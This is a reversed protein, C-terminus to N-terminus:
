CAVQPLAPAHVALARIAALNHPQHLPALPVLSELDALVQPTIRVPAAYDAGGHVVRHGAAVLTLPAPQTALFDLLRDISGAHDLPAACREAVVGTGSADRVDFRPAVG